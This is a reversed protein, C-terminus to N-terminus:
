AGALETQLRKLKGKISGDLVWDGLKITVGSILEPNTKADMTVKKGTFKELGKRLTEADASSLDAASKVQARVVGQHEDLLREFEAVVYPLLTFRKKEILLELLRLTRSSVSTGVLNKLETKLKAAGTMPHKFAAMKPSLAKFASLLERAIKDAEKHEVSLQFLALAYRRGLVRDQTQM